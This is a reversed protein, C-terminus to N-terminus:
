PRDKRNWRKRMYPTVLVLSLVLAYLAAYELPTM